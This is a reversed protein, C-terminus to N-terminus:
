QLRSIFHYGRSPDVPYYDEDQSNCALMSYGGFEGYSVEIGGSALSTKEQVPAMQNM